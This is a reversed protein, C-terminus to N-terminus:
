HTRRTEECRKKKEECEGVGAVLNNIFLILAKSLDEMKYFAPLNMIAEYVRRDREEAMDFRLTIEKQEM